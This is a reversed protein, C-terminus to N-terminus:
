RGEGSDGNGQSASDRRKGSTVGAFEGNQPPNPGRASLVATAAAPIAGVLACLAAFWLGAAAGSAESLVGGVAAGVGIGGNNATVLWAFTQTGRGERSLRDAVLYTTTFLVGIAAGPVLLAFGLPELRTATLAALAFGAGVIVQLAIVRREPPWRWARAGALLSGAVTGVAMAALLVGALAVNGGERAAAPIADGTAGLAAGTGALALLLLWLAAPM